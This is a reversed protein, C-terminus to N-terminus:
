AAEEQGAPEGVLEAIMMARREGRGRGIRTLLIPSAAMSM